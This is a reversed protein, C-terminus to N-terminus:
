FWELISTGAMKNVIVGAVRLFHQWIQWCHESLLALIYLCVCINRFAEVGWKSITLMIKFFFQSKGLSILFEKNRIRNKSCVGFLRLLHFHLSKIIVYVSLYTHFLCTCWHKVSLFVSQAIMEKIWTFWVAAWLSSQFFYHKRYAYITACTAMLISGSGRTVALTFTHILIFCFIRDQFAGSSSLVEPLTFM